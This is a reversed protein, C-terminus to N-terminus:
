EEQHSGHLFALAPLFRRFSETSGHHIVFPFHESKWVPLFGELSWRIRVKTVKEITLLSLEKTRM